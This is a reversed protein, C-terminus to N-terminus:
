ILKFKSKFVVDVKVVIDNDINYIYVFFRYKINGILKYAVLYGIEKLINAYLM